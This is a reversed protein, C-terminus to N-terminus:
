WDVSFVGANEPEKVKDVEGFWSMTGLGDPSVDEGTTTSVSDAVNSGKWPKDEGQVSGVYKGDGDKQSVVEVNDGIITANNSTGHFSYTHKDGGSVHFFDVAYAIDDNAEVSVVTRRYDEVDPYYKFQIDSRDNAAYVGPVSVDMISVRETSDFHLPKSYIWKYHAREDVTVTNHSITHQLFEARHVDTSPKTSLGGLDDAVPFGYAYANMVLADAHVHSNARQGYYIYDGHQTNINNARDKSNLWDGGRLIAMGYGTLNRSEMDLMVGNEVAEGIKESIAEPNEDFISTHIDKESYGNKIYILKLIHEAYEPDDKLIEYANTLFDMTLGTNHAGIQYNDGVNPSMLTGILVDFPAKVIRRFKTMEALNEGEFKDYDNYMKAMTFYASATGTNYLQATENIFGDRGAEYLQDLLSGGIYEFGFQDVSGHVDYKGGAQMNFDIWEQTEPQTDLVIALIAHLKQTVGWNAGVSMDRINKDLERIFNNEINTKILAPSTKKNKLDFEAAKRSAYKVVEPEDFAPWLADYAYTLPTAIQACDHLRGIAKGPSYRVWTGKKGGSTQTGEGVKFFSTNGDGQQFVNGCLETTMDPWVDAVRDLLIAGAIGYKKEGTYLYAMALTEIHNPLRGSQWMQRNYYAVFPECRTEVMGTEPITYEYEYGWGDDVAFYSDKGDSASNYLKNELYGKGYGYYEKWEEPLGPARDANKNEGETYYNKGLRLSLDFEFDCECNEGDACVFMEHHKQLAQQYSWNGHEDIGLEYFKDFENSPFLRKCKWCQVKWPRTFESISWGTKEGCYVCLDKGTDNYRYSMNMARPLENTTILNYYADVGRELIKDAAEVYADREDEAWDYKEINARLNKVKDDTYYSRRNKVSGVLVQYQGVFVTEGYTVTIEIMGVGNGVGTVTGNEDVMVVDETLSRFLMESDKAYAPIDSEWK